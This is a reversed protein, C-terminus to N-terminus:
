EIELDYVVVEHIMFYFAFREPATLRTVVGYDILEKGDPASINGDSDYQYGIDGLQWIPTTHGTITCNDHGGLYGSNGTTPVNSGIDMIEFGDDCVIDLNLYSISSLLSVAEGRGIEIEFLVTNDLIYGYVSAHGLFPNGESILNSNFNCQEYANYGQGANANFHDSLGYGKSNASNESGGYNSLLFNVWHDSYQPSGYGMFNMWEECTLSDFEVVQGNYATSFLLSSNWENMVIVESPNFGVIEQVSWEVSFVQITSSLGSDNQTNVSNDTTMSNDSSDITTNNHYHIEQNVTVSTNNMFDQINDDFLEQLTADDIEAVGDSGTCGALAASMMAIIMLIAKDRMNREEM